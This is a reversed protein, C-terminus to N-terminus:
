KQAYDSYLWQRRALKRASLPATMEAASQMDGHLESQIKADSAAWAAERRQRVTESSIAFYKSKHIWNGSNIERVRAVLSYEYEGYVQNRRKLSQRYEVFSILHEVAEKKSGYVYPHLIKLLPLTKQGSVQLENKPKRGLGGKMNCRYAKIGSFDTILRDVRDVLVFDTNVFIIRPTIHCKLAGDQEQEVYQFTFTGEAELMATLWILKMLREQQNERDEVNEGLSQYDFSARNQPLIGDAMIEEKVPISTLSRPVQCLESIANTKRNYMVVELSELM